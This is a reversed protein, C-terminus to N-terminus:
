GFRATTTRAQQSGSGIGRHGRHRAPQRTADHRRPQLAPGSPAPPHPPAAAARPAGLAPNGTGIEPDIVCQAQEQQYATVDVLMWGRSGGRLDRRCAWRLPYRSPHPVLATAALRLLWCRVRV